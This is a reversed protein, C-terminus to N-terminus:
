YPNTVDQPENCYISKRALAVRNLKILHYYSWIMRYFRGKHVATWITVSSWHPALNLIEGQVSNGNEAAHFKTILAPHSFFVCTWWENMMDDNGSVDSSVFVQERWFCYNVTRLFIAKWIMMTRMCMKWFGIGFWEPIFVIQLWRSWLGGLRQVM